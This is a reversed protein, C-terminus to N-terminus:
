GLSLPLELHEAYMRDRHDLLIPNLAAKTTEDLFGFAMRNQPPMDCQEEPLPKFLAMSTASYIDVASPKDGFYYNSGQAQQRKLRSALMKLVSVVRQTNSEVSLESYGYKSGIYEAHAKGDGEMQLGLHVLQLRRSWGLGGQGLIEHGIGFMLAREEADDPILVPEPALSEAFLLIEAWGTLPRGGPRMVVPANNYGTWGQLAEDKPAHRVAKWPISKMHFVGKAGEGWPSPIRSVVVMKLDDTTKAEEFDIYSFPM